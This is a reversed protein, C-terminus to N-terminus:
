GLVHLERHCLSVSRLASQKRKMFVYVSLTTIGLSAIWLLIRNTGQLDSVINLQEVGYRDIINQDLPNQGYGAVRNVKFDVYLGYYAISLCTVVFAVAIAVFRIARDGSRSLGDIANHIGPGLDFLAVMIFAASIDSFFHALFSIHYATEATAMNGNDNVLDQTILLVLM